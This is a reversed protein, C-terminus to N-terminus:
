SGARCYEASKSAYVGTRRIGAETAWASRSALAGCATLQWELARAPEGALGTFNQGVIHASLGHGPRRVAPLLDCARGEVDDTGALQLSANGELFHLPGLLFIRYADAVLAAALTDRGVAPQSNYRVGVAAGSRTVQKLEAPGSHWQGVVPEAGLLLRQESTKCFSADILVPRLKQVLDLWQGDYSVNLDRLERFAAVGHAQASSELLLRAADQEGPQRTQPIGVCANLLPLLLALLFCRALSLRSM